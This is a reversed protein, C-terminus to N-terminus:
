QAANRYINHNSKDHKISKYIRRNKVQPIQLLVKPYVVNNTKKDGNESFLITVRQASTIRSLAIYLQDHTFASIQLDLGM